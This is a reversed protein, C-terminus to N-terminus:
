SRRSSGYREAEEAIIKLSQEHKLAASIADRIEAAPMRQLKARPISFRAFALEVLDVKTRAEDSIYKSIAEDDYGRLEETSPTVWLSSQAPSPDARESTAEKELRDALKRLAEALAPNGTRRDKYISVMQRLFRVVDQDSLGKAIRDAMGTM